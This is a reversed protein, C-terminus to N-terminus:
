ARSAARLRELSVPLNGSRWNAWPVSFPRMTERIVSEQGTAM